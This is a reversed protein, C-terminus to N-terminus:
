AAAVQLYTLYHEIPNPNAVYNLSNVYIIGKPLISTYYEEVGNVIEPYLSVFGLFAVEKHLNLLTTAFAKQTTEAVPKGQKKEMGDRYQKLISDLVGQARVPVPVVSKGYGQESDIIPFSQEYVESIISNIAIVPPIPRQTVVEAGKQGADPKHKKASSTFKKLKEANIKEIEDDQFTM